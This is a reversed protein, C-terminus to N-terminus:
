KSARAKRQLDRLARYGIRKVNQSELIKRVEADRTFMEYETARDEWSNTIHKIEDGPVSAHIYLETVGPKLSNLERKWYERVSEGQKRDGHILYDPYVTGDSDLQGRQHGGGQTALLEQSGMRIPLNFEKALRRYVQFYAENYRAVSLRASRRARACREQERNTGVQADEVRQYSLPTRRLRLGSTGQRLGRDRSVVPRSRHDYIFDCAREGDLRDGGRECCPQQRRRRRKSNSDQRQSQIGM